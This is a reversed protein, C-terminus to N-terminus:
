YLDKDRVSPPAQEAARCAGGGEGAVRAPLRYASRATEHLVSAQEQAPYKALLGLVIELWEQYSGRLTMVPWDSGFMCRRPGFVEIAHTLYRGIPEASWGDEGSETLLGSLKCFVNQNAALRELDRQWATWDERDVAPKGLHDLVIRLQPVRAAVATLEELQRRRICADFTLDRAGVRELGELFGARLAFGPEEDQLLRRVGVVEPRATLEALVPEVGAGLEVPAFGAIGRLWRGAIQRVWDIERMGQDAACDAQVFIFERVQPTNALLETPGFRRRLSGELWHYDLKAPDWLHIHADIIGPQVGATTM